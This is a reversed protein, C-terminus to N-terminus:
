LVDDSNNDCEPGGFFGPPPLELLLVGIKLKIMNHSPRWFPSHCGPRVSPGCRVVAYAEVAEKIWKSVTDLTM